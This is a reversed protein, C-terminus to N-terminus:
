KPACHNPAADKILSQKGPRIETKVWAEIPQILKMNKHDLVPRPQGAVPLGVEGAFELHQVTKERPIWLGVSDSPLFLAGDPINGHQLAKLSPDDLLQQLGQLVPVSLTAEYVQATLRAGAMLMQSSKESHYQGGAYVIVCSGEM